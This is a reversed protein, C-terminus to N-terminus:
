NLFKRIRGIVYNRENPMQTYFNIYPLNLKEAYVRAILYKVNADHSHGSGLMVVGVAKGNQELVFTFPQGWEAKYVQYPRTTYLQFEDSVFGVLDTVAVNERIDYSPFESKLIERFYDVWEAATKEREPAREPEAPRPAPQAQRAPQASKQQNDLYDKAVDVVKSLIKGFDMTHIISTNRLSYIAFICSNPQHEFLKPFVKRLHCRRISM